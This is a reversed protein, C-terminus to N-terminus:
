KIFQYISHALFMGFSMASIILAATRYKINGRKVFPIIWSSILLVWAISLTLMTANM